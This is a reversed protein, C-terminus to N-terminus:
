RRRIVVPGPYRSPSVAGTQSYQFSLGASLGVLVGGGGNGDGGGDDARWKVRVGFAANRYTPVRVVLDGRMYRQLM